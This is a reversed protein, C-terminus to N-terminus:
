RRRRQRAGSSFQSLGEVQLIFVHEGTKCVLLAVAAFIDRAKHFYELWVQESSNYISTENALLLKNMMYIENKYNQRRLLSKQAHALKLSDCRLSLKQIKLAYNM